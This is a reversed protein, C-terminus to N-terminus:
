DKGFREMARLTERSVHHEIGEADIAAQKASVGLARLFREVIEHRQRANEALTRGRSTLEIPRYPETTLLGQDCLRKVIRSVTVHSVGMMRALDRVRAEGHSEVLTAVAEVYDEATEDRHDARTRRFPATIDTDRSASDQAM